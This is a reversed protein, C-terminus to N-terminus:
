FPKGNILFKGDSVAITRVGFPQEYTDVCQGDRWLEVVCTYLYAHLPQWLHANELILQGAPGTSRAVTEGSEDYMSLRVEADGEVEIIYGVRADTGHVETTLTIDRVYTKPTTYLKVPRQIGAYNFFDFNPTDTVVKGLGPVDEERYNGVPLTTLDVINNVAVTLRNKGSNAFANIEAEFPTFGGKHETVPSGNLYVRAEHTVSGFRLFIRHTFFHDPIVIEREYWVWGIHDRFCPSANPDDGAIPAQVM